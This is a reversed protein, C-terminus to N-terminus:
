RASYRVRAGNGDAVCYAQRAMWRLLQQARWTEVRVRRAVESPTWSRQPEAELALEIRDMAAWDDATWQEAM